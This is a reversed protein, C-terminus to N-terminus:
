HGVSSVSSQPSPSPIRFLLPASVFYQVQLSLHFRLLQFSLLPFFCLLLSKLIWVPSLTQFIASSIIFGSSCILFLSFLFLLSCIFLWCYFFFYDLMFIFTKDCRQAKAKSKQTPQLRGGDASWWLRIMLPRSNISDGRRESWKGDHSENKM